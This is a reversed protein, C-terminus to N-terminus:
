CCGPTTPYSSGADPGPEGRLRPVGARPRFRPRRLDPRVAMAPARVWRPFSAACGPAARYLELTSHPRGRQAQVSLEGWGPPQPLWPATTAGFGYRPAEGSWPLPVRCGDRGCPGARVAELIPDQRAEEPLDVVEPLGLEEGQYVYASGPLALMLLLPPGPGACASPSTAPRDRARQRGVLPAPRDARGYRTVHRHRRPQVAGLDDPRRGAHM